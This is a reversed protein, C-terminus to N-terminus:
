KERRGRETRTKSGLQNLRTNLHVGGVKMGWEGPDREGGGWVGM